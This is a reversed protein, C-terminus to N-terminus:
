PWATLTKWLMHVLAVMGALLLAVLAVVDGHFEGDTWGAAGLLVFTAPWAFTALRFALLPPVNRDTRGIYRDVVILAM